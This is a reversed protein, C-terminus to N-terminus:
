MSYQARGVRLKSVDNPTLYQLFELAQAGRIWFEGMHSVDFMGVAERVALHEASISSYQIPMDYGAFPAM